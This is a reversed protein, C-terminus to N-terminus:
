PAVAVQLTMKPHMACRVEFNGAKDFKVKLTQGPQQSGANFTHGPTSSMVNHTIADDNQFAITDGAKVSIQGPNFTKDAQSIVHEGAGAQATVLLICATATGLLRLTM